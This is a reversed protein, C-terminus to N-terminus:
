RTERMYVTALALAVLTALVTFGPLGEGGSEDDQSDEETDDGESVNESTGDDMDEEGDDVTENEVGEDLEEDGEVTENAETDEEDEMEPEGGGVVITDVFEDRIYVDYEGAEDFVYGFSFRAPNRRPVDLSKTAVEKDDIALDIEATDPPGETVEITGSFEVSEGTEVELASTTLNSMLFTTPDTVSFLSSGSGFGVSGSGDDDSGSDPVSVSFVSMGPTDVWYEYVRGTEGTIDPVYTEWEDDTDDYRQLVVDQPSVGERQLRDKEVEFNFSAEEVATDDFTHNIDLYGLSERNEPETANRLPDEDRRMSMSATQQRNVSVRLELMRNEIQQDVDMQPMEAVLTENVTLAGSDAENPANKSMDIRQPPGRVRFTETKESTRGFEDVVTHTVTYNGRTNITPQVEEGTLNEGTEDVHWRRENINLLDPNRLKSHLTISDEVTPQKPSVFFDVDVREFILDDVTAGVTDSDNDSKVTLQGTGADGQQTSWTLTVNRSQGSGATVSVSDVLNGDFDFLNIGQTGSAGGVNEVLVDVNLDEGETVPSRVDTIGVAFDATQTGSDPEVTVEQTASANDSSVSIEDTSNDGKETAWTLNVEESAGQALSLQATDQEAGDFDTLAIDQTGQGGFNTVNATVTLQDGEVVPSNTDIIEVDFFPPETRDTPEVVVNQTGSDDESAVVATHDGADGDDTQWEFVQTTAEGIDLSLSTDDVKTGDIELSVNQTAFENGTNFIEATVELVESENVPSNTGTIGVDFFEAGTAGSLPAFVGDLENQTINYRVENASTNLSDTGLETWGGQNHRWVSLGTEDVGSVDSDEYEFTLNLFSGTTSTNTANIYRGINEQNAPDAPPTTVNAMRIGKGSFSLTTNPAVSNSVNLKEVENNESDNMIGLDWEGNAAVENETLLNGNSFEEISVGLGRNGRVTNDTLVNSSSEALVVGFHNNRVTNETLDNNDSLDLGIGVNDNETVTNGVLDNGDSSSTLGIGATNDSVRNRTVINNSSGVLVIGQTNGSLINDAVDNGSTSSLVIGFDNGGVENQFVTNSGGLSIKIGNENSTANVNTVRGDTVDDYLVGESWNTVTVNRVTINTLSTTSSTVAVGVGDNNVGDITHGQGDLTVDSVAITICSSQDSNTIDNALEVTGDAPVTSSDIVGCTDLTDQASVSPIGVGVCLALLLFTVVFTRGRALSAASEKAIEEKGEGFGLITSMVGSVSYTGGINLYFRM